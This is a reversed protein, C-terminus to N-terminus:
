WPRRDRRRPYGGCPLPARRAPRAPRVIRRGSWLWGNGDPGESCAWRRSLFHKPASDHNSVDATHVPRGLRRRDGSRPAAARLREAGLRTRRAAVRTGRAALRSSPMKRARPRLALGSQGRRDHYRRGDRRSTLSSRRHRHLHRTDRGRGAFGRQSHHVAPKRLLLPGRLSCWIRWGRRACYRWSVVVM